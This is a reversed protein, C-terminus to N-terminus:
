MHSFARGERTFNYVVNLAPYHTQQGFDYTPLGPAVPTVLRVNNVMFNYSLEFGFHRTMNWAVRGGATGGTVFQEGLGQHVQGFLSVGGFPDLEILDPYEDATGPKASAKSVKDAETSQGLM